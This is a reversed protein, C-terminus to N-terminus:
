SFWGKSWRDEWGKVANRWDDMIRDLFIDMGIWEEVWGGGGGDTCRQM